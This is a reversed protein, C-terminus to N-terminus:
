QQITLSRCYSTTDVPLYNTAYYAQLIVHLMICKNWWWLIDCMSDCYMQQWWVLINETNVM